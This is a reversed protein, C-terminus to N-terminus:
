KKVHIEEIRITTEGGEFTWREMTDLWYGGTYVVYQESAADAPINLPHRQVIIDGIQWQDLPVGLGDGVALPVGDNDTLHAMLSLPRAPVNEVKWFTQLLISTEPRAETGDLQYGLFRLPSDLSAVSYLNQPRPVGNVTYVRYAPDGNPQRAELLHEVTAPPEAASPLIYIGEGQNAFAWSQECNFRLTRLTSVGLHRAIVDHPLNSDPHTCVGAWTTTPQPRVDYVFLAHGLRATPERSRFWAYTNLDPAYPGQLVTAGVAYLGPQPRWPTFTVARPDPPLFDANIGYAQPRAPSYHAYYVHDHGNSEMWSRLDWLNQGWDLNSDVLYNYGHDPGSAMKNFFALYHPALTLTGPILWVLAGIVVFRSAYLTFRSFHPPEFIRAVCIGMGLYLFPLLPLLHRYGINVTSFFSAIAYLLPFLTLTPYLNHVTFRSRILRWAGRVVCWAGLALVPLPTKLCFAMPFYWWWGQDSVRGM